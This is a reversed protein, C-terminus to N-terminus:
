KWNINSVLREYGEISLSTLDHDSLFPGRLILQLRRHASGADASHLFHRVGLRGLNSLLTSKELPTISNFYSTFQSYVLSFGLLVLVLM